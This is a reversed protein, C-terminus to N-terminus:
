NVLRFSRRWWSCWRVIFFSLFFWINKREEMLRIRRRRWCSAAEDEAHWSYWPKTWEDVSNRLTSFLIERTLFLPFLHQLSRTITTHDEFIAIATQNNEHHGLLFPLFPLFPPCLPHKSNWKRANSSVDGGWTWSLRAVAVCRDASASCICARAILSAPCHAHPRIAVRADFPSNANDRFKMWPETTSRTLPSPRLGQERRFHSGRPRFCCTFFRLFTGVGKLSKKLRVRM